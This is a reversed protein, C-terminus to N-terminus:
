PRVRFPIITEEGGNPREPEIGTLMAFAAESIMLDAVAHRISLIRNQRLVDFARKILEPEECPISDDLPEHKRDSGLQIMIYKYQHEGILGLDRLRRAIAAISLKWRSKLKKLAPISNSFYENNVSRAPFLFAGAFRHAQGELKALQETDEFTKEEAMQHLVLHGLEHALNFRRRVGSESEDSLFIFPRNHRWTSFADLTDPLTISAIIIGNNELLRTLHPIPGDGLGWARRVEVAIQEVNEKDLTRYDLNGDFPVRAPHFELHRDLYYYIDAFIKEYEEAQMKATKTASAKKRFSIPATRVSDGRPRENLFFPIPFGTVSSIAFLTEPSPKIKDKEFASIAQRKVRVLEALVVQSFGRISRAERIREGYVPQDKHVMKAM